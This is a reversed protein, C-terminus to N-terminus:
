VQPREWPLTFPGPGGTGGTPVYPGASPPGAPGGSGPGYAPPLPVHASGDGPGPQGHDQFIFGPMPARGPYSAGPGRGEGPAGMGGFIGASAPGGWPVGM